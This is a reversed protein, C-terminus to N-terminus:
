LFIVSNRMLPTFLLITSFYFFTEKKNKKELM